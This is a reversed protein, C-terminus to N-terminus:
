LDFKGRVGLHLWQHIGKDPISQGEVNSYQGLSFLVYPGVYFQNSVKYDGGLQLNLFEFGTTDASASVGGLSAKETLWEFGLGAGVWPVFTPSVTTFSYTGQVGLRMSSASCDVGLADCQDKVDSNLMGFGYSFYLGAAIEPTFKYMGDIQIPIQAKVEDKLKFDKAYDGMAPAYGVRLGLSFQAQSATPLALAMAIAGLLLTKRM